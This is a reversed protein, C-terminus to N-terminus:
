YVRCDHDHADQSAQILGALTDPDTTANVYFEQNTRKWGCHACKVVLKGSPPYGTWVYHHEAGRLLVCGM